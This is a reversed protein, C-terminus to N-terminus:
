ATALREVEPCSIRARWVIAVAGAVALAVATQLVAGVDGHGPLLENSANWAAHLLVAAWVGGRLHETVFLITYCIPFLGAFFLAGQLSFLGKAHQGTGTLFFLPVHWVGWAIAMVVATRVRGYRLRLRPQAFGRWGFEESLPGSVLTYALVGLPGGVGAAVSAVHLPIAGLDNSGLVVAAVLPPTAGLAIAVVPWGWSVRTGSRRPGGHHDRRMLLWMTLAALSPGSAALGFVLAAPGEDVDAGLAGLVSWPVWSLVLCLAGFQVLRRVPLPPPPDPRGAPGPTSTPPRELHRIPSTPSEARETPRPAPAPIDM